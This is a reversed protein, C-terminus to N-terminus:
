FYVELKNQQDSTYVNIKNDEKVVFTRDHLFAQCSQINRRDENREYYGSPHLDLDDQEMAEVPLENGMFADEMFQQEDEKLDKNSAKSAEEFLCMAVLKGVIRWAGEKAFIFQFAELKRNSNAVWMASNGNKDVALSAEGCIECSLLTSGSDQETIVLCYTFDSVSFLQFLSKESLTQFADATEDYVGFIGNQENLKIADPYDASFNLGLKLQKPQEQVYYADSVPQSYKDSLQRALYEDLDVKETENAVMKRSEDQSVADYPEEKIHSVMLDCLVQIFEFVQSETSDDHFEIAFYKGAKYFCLFSDNVTVLSLDSIINFYLERWEGDGHKALNNIVTISYEFSDKSDVLFGVTVDKSLLVLPSDFEKKWLRCNLTVTEPVTKSQNFGFVKKFYNM